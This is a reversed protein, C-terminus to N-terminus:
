AVLRRRWAPSVLRGLGYVDASAPGAAGLAAMSVLAAGLGKMGAKKMALRGLKLKHPGIARMKGKVTILALGTGISKKEKNKM